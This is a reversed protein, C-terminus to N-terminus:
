NLDITSKYVTNPFFVEVALKQQAKLAAPEIKFPVNGFGKVETGNIKARIELASSYARMSITGTISENKKFNIKDPVIVAEMKDFKFTIGDEYERLFLNELIALQLKILEPPTDETVSLTLPFTLAYSSFTKDIFDNTTKPLNEVRITDVSKLYDIIDLHIKTFTSALKFENEFGGKGHQNIFDNMKNLMAENSKIQNDILIKVESNYNADTHVGCSILCLSLIVLAPIAKM